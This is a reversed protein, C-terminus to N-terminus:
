QPDEVAGDRHEVGHRAHLRLALRHPSLGVPVPYRADREDVLQVPRARVEVRGDGRDPPQVRRREDHLQRDATLVAVDADGVQKPHPRQGPGAPTPRDTFSGHRVHQPVLCVTAAPQQLFRYRLQM